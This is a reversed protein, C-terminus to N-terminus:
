HKEAQFIPDLSNEIVSSVKSEDAPFRGCFAITTNLKTHGLASSISEISFNQQALFRAFM